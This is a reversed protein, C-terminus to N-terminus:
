VQTRKRVVALGALGIFFLAISVPEPVNNDSILQGTLKLGTCGDTECTSDYAYDSANTAYLTTPGGNFGIVGLQLVGGANNFVYYSTNISATLDLTITGLADSSLYSASGSGNADSAIWTNQFTGGSTTLTVQTIQSNLYTQNLNNAAGNNVTINLIGNTGWVSTDSSDEWSPLNFEYTFPIAHAVSSIGFFAAVVFAFKTFIPKM